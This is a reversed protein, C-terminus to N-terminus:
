HFDEGFVKFNLTKKSIRVLLFEKRKSDGEIDLIEDLDIDIEDFEAESGKPFSRFFPKYPLEDYDAM